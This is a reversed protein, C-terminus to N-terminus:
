DPVDAFRGGVNRSFPASFVSEWCATGDARRLQVRIPGTFTRPDPTELMTGRAYVSMEAHGLVGPKVGLREVGDPTRAANHYFYGRPRASWCAGGCTGAPPIEASSRLVGADYVCLRYGATTTPDQVEALSTASGRLWRWRLDNKASAAGFERIVLQGRRPVAPLKCGGLPTPPCAATPLCAPDTGCAADACDAFGDCDDDVSDSCLETANPHIGANADDCDGGVSAGHCRMAAAGTGYGDHDADAYSLTKGLAGQPDDDDAFGDCDEDVGDPDCVETGGPHASAHADDCDIPDALTGENADDCDTDASLAAASSRAGDDDADVFCLEHGDCNEDVGDGIIEVAGPHISPNGDNCDVSADYGDGDQDVARAPHAVSLFLLSAVVVLPARIM